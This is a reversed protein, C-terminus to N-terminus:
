RLQASSYGIDMAKYEEYMDVLGSLDAHSVRNAYKVFFPTLEEGLRRIVRPEYLRHYATKDPDDDNSAIPPSTDMKRGYRELFSRTEKQPHKTTKLAGPLNHVANVIFYAFEPLPEFPLIHLYPEYIDALATAAERDIEGNQARTLTAGDQIEPHCLRFRDLALEYISAFCEDYNIGRKMQYAIVMTSLSKAALFAFDAYNSVTSFDVIDPYEEKSTLTAYFEKGIRRHAEEIMEIACTLLDLSKEPAGLCEVDIFTEHLALIFLHQQEEATKAARVLKLLSGLTDNVHAYSKKEIELNKTLSAANEPEPYADIEQRLTAVNERHQQRLENRTATIAELLFPDPSSHQATIRQDLM